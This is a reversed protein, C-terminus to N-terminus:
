DLLMIRKREVGSDTQGSSTTVHFFKAGSTTTCMIKTPARNIMMVQMMTLGARFSTQHQILETRLGDFLM